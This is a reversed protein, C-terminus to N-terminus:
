SESLFTNESPFKWHRVRSLVFVRRVADAAAASSISELRFANGIRETGSCIGTMPDSDPKLYEAVGAESVMIGGIMDRLATDM